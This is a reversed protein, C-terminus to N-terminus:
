PMSTPQLKSDRVSIKEWLVLEGRTRRVSCHDKWWFGLTLVSIASLRSDVLKGMSATDLLVADSSGPPKLTDWLLEQVPGVSGLERCSRTAVPTM